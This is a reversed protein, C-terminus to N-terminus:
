VISAEFKPLLPSPSSDDMQDLPHTFSLSSSPTEWCFLGWRDMVASPASFPLPNGLIWFSLLGLQQRSPKICSHSHSHCSLLLVISIYSFLLSYHFLHTPVNNDLNPCCHTLHCHTTLTFCHSLLVISMSLFIFCYYSYCHFPRPFTWFWSTMFPTIHRSWPVLHHLFSLYHHSVTSSHRLSTTPPHILHAPLQHHTTIPHYVGEIFSLPVLGSHASPLSGLIYLDPLSAPCVENSRKREKGVMDWDNGGM